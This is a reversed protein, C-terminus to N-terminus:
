SFPLFPPDDSGPMAPVVVSVRMMAGPRPLFFPRPLFQEELGAAARRSVTRFAFLWGKVITGAM